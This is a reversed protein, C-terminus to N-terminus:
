RVTALCHMLSDVMEKTPRAAEGDGSGGFYRGRWLALRLAGLMEPFAPRVAHKYWPRDRRPAEAGEGHLAHWPVTLGYVFFATAHAREVSKATRVQPEQLGLHQKCDRFAVEISWRRAYGAVVDAAAMSPDTCLLATDPWAGSPDRVLVVKVPRTKCASYWSVRELVRLRLSKEEGGPLEVRRTKGLGDRAFTEKPTALREGKKPAPGRRGPVRPGPLAYLAAKLPLPGIVRLNPPMSGLVAVNIYASDALLCVDRTPMLACAVRAMGAAMVTRKQHGPLGKKRFVRWLVPLCYVRDPRLPHAVVLGLVVFNVGFSLVKRGKSSQVPDLFMGGFAVAKGRKRCLTDDVAIWVLGPPVLRVLLMLCLLAGVEDWDWEASSFLHHIADFHRRAPLASVQWVESLTRTGPCVLWAAVVHKFNDFAEIRFCPRFPALLDALSPIIYDM